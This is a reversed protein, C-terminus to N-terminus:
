ATRLSVVRGTRAAKALGDLMTAVVVAQSGPSIPQQGRRICDAFHQIENAYQNEQGLQPASDIKTKGEMEYIVFEPMLQVGGKTGFLRMWYLDGTHAAWSIDLGLARGDEFRIIGGVMDEVSFETPNYGVGWDGLGQGSSGLHDFTIGYASVPNPRGMIWWMFDIAHVGLDILPGGGQLKKQGFVGWGPVGRRRISLSRAYYPKGIKGAEIIKKLFRSGTFFRNNLGIMLKKKAKRTADIMTQAQRANMAIPKECLVHKGAALAKLTSQMHNINPTCVSVADIEKMALMRGASTFTKPIDYKEAAAKARDAVVDCVAVVEADSCERYGELHFASIMGAGIVGVKVKKAM